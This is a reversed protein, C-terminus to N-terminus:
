GLGACSLVANGGGGGTGQETQLAMDVHAGLVHPPLCLEFTKRM